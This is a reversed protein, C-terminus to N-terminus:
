SVTSLKRWRVGEREIRDRLRHGELQIIDVDRGLKGSLFAMARFFDEDGLGLFAVDIDSHETFRYPVTLSGFVFAEDFRVLLSLEELAEFVKRLTERRLAESRERRKRIAEELLWTM